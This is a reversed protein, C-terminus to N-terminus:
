HNTRIRIYLEGYNKTLITILHQAHEAEGGCFLEDAIVQAQNVLENAQEYLDDESLDIDPKIIMSIAQDYLDHFEEDEISLTNEPKRQVYNAIEEEPEKSEVIEDPNIILNGIEKYKAMLDPLADLGILGPPVSPYLFAIMMDVFPETLFLDYFLDAVLVLDNQSPLGDVYQFAGPVLFLRQHPYMKDKFEKLCETYYIFYSEVDEDQLYNDFGMMTYNEPIEFDGILSPYGFCSGVEVGSFTARITSAVTELMVLMDAQSIGVHSGNWFPEDLVYFMLISDIYPALDSAYRDWREQYDPYLYLEQELTGWDKICFFLHDVWIVSKMDHNQAETILDIIYCTDEPDESSITAINSSPSLEAIYNGTGLGQMATGLYGFYQQPQPDTHDKDSDSNCGFVFLISIIAFLKKMM